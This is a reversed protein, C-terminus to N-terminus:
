YYYYGQGSPFMSTKKRHIYENIHWCFPWDAEVIIVKFGKVEILYKSIDARIRYFEETGHTCEGLLVTHTNSPILKNGIYRNNPLINYLNSKKLNLNQNQSNNNNYEEDNIDKTMSSSNNNDESSSSSSTNISM